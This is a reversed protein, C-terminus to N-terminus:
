RTGVTLLRRLASIPFPKSLMGAIRLGNQHALKGASELGRDDLGSTIIIASSCALASLQALVQTGDMAPMMLDVAVHTPAWTAVLQFFEASDATFRSELGASEGTAQMLRAVAADDDFILFRDAPV